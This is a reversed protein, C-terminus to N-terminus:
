AGPFPPPLSGNAKWASLAHGADFMRYQSPWLIPRLSHAFSRRRVGFRECTSKAPLLLWDVGDPDPAPFHKANTADGVVSSGDLAQWTPGAFHIAVIDREVKDSAILNAHPVAVSTASVPCTYIQVGIGYARLLLANGPPVSLIGPISQQQTVSQGSNQDISNVLGSKQQAAANIQLAAGTAAVGIAVTGSTTKIFKRRSIDM